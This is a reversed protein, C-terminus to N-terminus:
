PTTRSASEPRSAREPRSAAGLLGARELSAIEADTLGAEALVERTHQGPLPAPRRVSAPSVSFRAPPPIQRYRGGEPHEAEPFARIVEDLSAAPAAPIGHEACFALWQATTRTAMVRSLTAYGFGPERWLSRSSLRPDGVLETLGAAAVLASWQEDRHPQVAIWGDATAAPARLPTLIRPYGAPGRQPQPIGSGGHEALTFARMADIMPVEVRQGQGTRERYFLAAMIAYSVVMGCVKDALLMPVLGPPLGARQMVDPVGSAAQIIDDFAPDDAQPSDSPFGNAQCFIVDPRVAAIDAYDLGARRLSAPRLNTVFVDCGAAIRLLAARGDPHSIDIAVNRKNRLMHLSVGSLGRVPGASMTRNIDGDRSEVAIVDAGLDGLIQTALPGMVVSTLDLVRVGTLPGDAPQGENPQGENPRDDAPDQDRTIGDAPDQDGTMGEAM